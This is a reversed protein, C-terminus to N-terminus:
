RSLTPKDISSCSSDPDIRSSDMKVGNPRSQARWPSGLNASIQLPMVGTARALRLAGGAPARDGAIVVAHLFVGGDDFVADEDSAVVHQHGRHADALARIGSRARSDGFVHRGM